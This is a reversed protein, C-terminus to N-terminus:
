KRKRWAYALLGVLGTIVLAITSPEPVALAFNDKVQDYSLASKYLAVDDITGDFFLGDSHHKGILYGDSTNLDWTLAQNVIPTLWTGDVNVYMSVLANGSTNVGTKTLVAYVSKGISDAGLDIGIAGGWSVGSNMIYLTNGSGPNSADDGFTLLACSDEGVNNSFVTGANSASDRVFSCEITWDGKFLNATTGDSAITSDLGSGSVYQSSSASFHAATDPDNSILGSANVKGGTSYTGNLSAGASGFNVATTVGAKENLRWYGIAGSSGGTGNIVNSAYSAKAGNIEIEDIATNDPSTNPVVIRMATATVPTSLNYQHRRADTPYDLGGGIAISGITTWVASPSTADASRTVQVYYTGGVRDTYGAPTGSAAGTAPGDGYLNDRGFAFSTITTLSGLKVGAYNGNTTSVLPTYATSIDADLAVAITSEGIWSNSNGYAGDNLHPITHAPYTTGGGIVDYAFATSGQSTSALNDSVVGSTSVPGYGSADLLFDSGTGVDVDAHCLAAFCVALAIGSVGHKARM